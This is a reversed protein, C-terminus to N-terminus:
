SKQVMEQLNWLLWGNKFIFQNISQNIFQNLEFIAEDHRNSSPRISSRYFKSLSSKQICEYRTPQNEFLLFYESWQKKMNGGYKSQPSVLFPKFYIKLENFELIFPMNRSEYWDNTATRVTVLHSIFM